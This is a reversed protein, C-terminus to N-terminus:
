AEGGNQGSAGSADAATEAGSSAEQENPGPGGIFDIIVASTVAGKEGSNGAASTTTVTATRNRPDNQLRILYESVVELM